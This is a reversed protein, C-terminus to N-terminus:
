HSDFGRFGGLSDFRGSFAEEWYAAHSMKLAYARNPAWPPKNGLRLKATIPSKTYNRDGIVNGKQIRRLFKM